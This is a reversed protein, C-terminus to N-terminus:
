ESGMASGPVRPDHVGTFIGTEPDRSILQSVGVNDSDAIQLEHGFSSLEAKLSEDMTSEVRLRDPSWQHHFRAAGIADQPTMGFDVVRIITSAVQTIIKPGGAAGLTMVPKGDKLVITPSMSSLPRKGPQIANNDAGILDFANPVGPAIAFDDMENNLIVGTGPVIVKSGFTTNITSTIAVWNGEEDATAIHTTHRDRFVDAPNPPCGHSQVDSVFGPDILKALECAYPKCILSKPVNAFAPDGPWHARDAFALKMAEAILHIAEARNRQAIAALDFHEVINLIQAVHIGGSSPPPFGVVCVNRYLTAVPARDVTQYNAFDSETIAGGSKRMWESVSKAFPGRYFWDTGNAAINRYTAALNRQQLLEGALKPTGDEHLLLAATAPFLKIREQTRAIRSSYLPTIRFGEEAIQAAPELLEPFARRGHRSVAQELALLAGPVAVARAGTQSQASQIEGNEDRYFDQFAMAPATERGDIAYLQGDSTHILIFCGGGIGSNYGDVVGLTLAAAVAADVANGGGRIADLGAQTAIPSVTAVMNKKSHGVNTPQCASADAFCIAAISVALLAASFISYRTKM